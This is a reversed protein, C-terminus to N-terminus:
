CECVTKGKSSCKHCSVGNTASMMDVHIAATATVFAELVVAAIAVITDMRIARM